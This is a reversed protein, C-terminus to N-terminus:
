SSEAEPHFTAYIRRGLEPGIGHVQTLEAVSASAVADLTSFRLLLAKRRGAGLGPVGDLGTRLAERDRRRRHAQLGNDHAADRAATLLLLTPDDPALRVPQRMGPVHLEEYRKSLAVFIPPNQVDGAEAAELAAALQGPGGDILMVDPYDGLGM